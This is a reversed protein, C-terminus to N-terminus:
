RPFLAMTPATPSYTVKVQDLRSVQVSGEPIIYFTTGDRSLAVQSVTGGTVIVTGDFPATYTFPSIGPTIAIVPQAQPNPAQLFDDGFWVTANPAVDDPILKELNSVRQVLGFADTSDVDGDLDANIQAAFAAATTGSNGLVSQAINYFFLWWNQQFRGNKDLVPTAITPIQNPLLSAM